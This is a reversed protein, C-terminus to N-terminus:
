FCVTECPSVSCCASLLIRLLYRNRIKTRQCQPFLFVVKFCFLCKHYFICGRFFRPSTTSLCFLFINSNFLFYFLSKTLLLVTIGFFKWKQNRWCCKRMSSQNKISYYSIKTTLIIYDSNVIYSYIMSKYIVAKNITEM